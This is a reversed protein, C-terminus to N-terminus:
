YKTPEAKPADDFTIAIDGGGVRDFFWQWAPGSKVTMEIRGSPTASAWAKNEEGRNAPCLTVVGWPAPDSYGGVAQKTVQQVYFRATVM